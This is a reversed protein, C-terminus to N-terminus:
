AQQAMQIGATERVAGKRKRSSTRRDPRDLRFLIQEVSVTRAGRPANVQFTDGVRRGLMAIGLPALVSIRRKSYDALAPLVPSYVHQGRPLVSRLVAVSDLTIVDDPVSDVVEASDLVDQLKQLEPRREGFRITMRRILASLCEKDFISIIRKM